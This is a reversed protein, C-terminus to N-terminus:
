QFRQEKFVGNVWWQQIGFSWIVAPGDERHRLGDKYWEKSGKSYEIAPGDERHRLGDRWYSRGHGKSELLVAVDQPLDLYIACWEGMSYSLDEWKRGPEQLWRFIEPPADKAKAQEIIGKKIEM